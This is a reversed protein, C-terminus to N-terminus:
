TRRVKTPLKCHPNTELKQRFMTTIEKEQKLAGEVSYLIPVSLVRLHDVETGRPLIRQIHCSHAFKVSNWGTYVMAVFLHFVNCVSFLDKFGMRVEGTDSGFGSCM